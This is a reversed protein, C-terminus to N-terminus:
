GAAHTSVLLRARALCHRIRTSSRQSTKRENRSPCLVFVVLLFHLTACQIKYENQCPPSFARRPTKSADFLLVFQDVFRSMCAVAVEVTFVLLRVFSKQSHFKPYDQKIRFVVVPRGDDDHGAVFAVGDALEASFEDAM